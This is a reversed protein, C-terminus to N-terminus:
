LKTGRVRPAGEDYWVGGSFPAASEEWAQDPKLVPNNVVYTPRHFRRKLSTHEILFDDVLLQRGSDIPIVEPPRSLYPVPMPTLSFYEAKPPWDDPLEIGNYLTESVVAPLWLAAGIIYFFPICIRRKM